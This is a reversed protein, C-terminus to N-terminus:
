ENNAKKITIEIANDKIEEILDHRDRWVKPNINKLLWMGSIPDPPYKKTWKKLVLGEIKCSKWEEVEHEYGIARNYLKNFLRSEVVSRGDLVAEKFSEHTAIWNDITRSTVGFTKALEGITFGECTLRFARDDFDTNYRIQKKKGEENAM